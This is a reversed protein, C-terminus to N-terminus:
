APGRVRRSAYRISENRTKEPAPRMEAALNMGYAVAHSSELAPMIRVSLNPLAKLKEALSSRAFDVGGLM